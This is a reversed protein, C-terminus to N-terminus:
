AGQCQPSATPSGTKCIELVRRRNVLMGNGVSPLQNVRGTGLDTGNASGTFPNAPLQASLLRLWSLSAEALTTRLAAYGDLLKGAVTLLQPVFFPVPTGSRHPM